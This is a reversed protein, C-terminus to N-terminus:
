RNIVKLLPFSMPRDYAEAALTAVNSRRRDWVPDIAFKARPDFSCSEPRSLHKTTHATGALSPSVPHGLLKGPVDNLLERFLSPDAFERRMVEASATGSEAAGSAAFQLLDLEEEPVDRHLRCLSVEAARLSNSRGYVVFDSDLGRGSNRQPLTASSESPVTSSNAAVLSKSRNNKDYTTADTGAAPTLSDDARLGAVTTFCGWVSTAERM